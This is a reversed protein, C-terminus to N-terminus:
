STQLSNEKLKYVLTGASKARVIEGKKSLFALTGSLTGKSFFLGNAELAERIEAMSKESQGWDSGLVTLIAESCGLGAPLLPFPRNPPQNAPSQSVSYLKEILSTLEEITEAELTIEGCKWRGTWHLKMRM